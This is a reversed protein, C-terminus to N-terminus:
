EWNGPVREESSTRQTLETKSFWGSLFKLKKCVKSQWIWNFALPPQISQFTLNYFKSSNFNSNGWPYFWRNNDARSNQLHGVLEHFAQYEQAAQPSLLTHFNHELSM